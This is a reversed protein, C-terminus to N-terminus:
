ITVLNNRLAFKVMEVSSKFNFKQMINNKHTEVTRISIYLKDAIEQNTYGEVYLKLIEKERKTLCPVRSIERKGQHKATSVLHKMISGSIGPSFYEEGVFVKKIATILVEVYISAAALLFDPIVLRLCILSRTWGVHITPFLRIM